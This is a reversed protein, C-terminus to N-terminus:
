SRLSALRELVKEPVADAPVRGFRFAGNALGPADQGDWFAESLVMGAVAGGIQAPAIVFQVGSAAGSFDNGRSLLLGLDWRYHAALNIVPQYWAIEEASSPEADAAEELLVADVGVEGFSRLFEAVYVACSDAEDGGVEIEADEGFALRYAEGAWARPSPFALVLPQSAFAARLGRVMELLQTRLAEDALLTRAPVVARKKAAMAERLEPHSAVWARCATGVPIACVDPRLLGAAKRRFAVYETADAWPTKGGALLREAYRTDDLWLLPSAASTVRDILKAM